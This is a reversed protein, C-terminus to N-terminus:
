AGIVELITGMGMDMGNYQEVARKASEIDEYTVQGRLIPFDDDVTCQLDAIPGVAELTMKLGVEGMNSPFGAFKIVPSNVPPPARLAAECDAILQAYSKGYRQKAIDPNNLYEAVVNKSNHDDKLNNYFEEFAPKTWMMEEFASSFTTPRQKPKDGDLRGALRLRMEVLMLKVEMENMMPPARIGSLMLEEEVEEYTMPQVKNFEEAVVPDNYDIAMNLATAATRQNRVFTKAVPGHRCPAVPSTTWARVHSGYFSVTSVISALLFSLKM